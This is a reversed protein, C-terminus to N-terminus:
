RVKVLFWADVNGKIANSYPCVEHASQVAAEATAQNLGTVTVELTVSLRFGDKGDPGLSRRSWGAGRAPGLSARTPWRGSRVTANRGGVASVRTEYLASM